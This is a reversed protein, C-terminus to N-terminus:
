FEMQEDAAISKAIADVGNQVRKLMRLILIPDRQTLISIIEGDINHQTFKM